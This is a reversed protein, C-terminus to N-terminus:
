LKVTTNLKTSGNPTTLADVKEVLRDIGNATRFTNSSIAALHALGNGMTDNINSVLPLMQEALMTRKAGDARIGNIYGGLLNATNETISAQIAGGLTTKSADTEDGTIGAYGRAKLRADAEQLANEYNSVGATIDKDLQELDDVISNDVVPTGDPKKLTLDTMPTGDPNLGYSAMFGAQAKTFFPQLTAAFVMQEVIDSIVDGVKKHFADIAGYVSGNVFANALSNSLSSGLDGVIDSFAKKMDEIAKKALEVQEKAVALLKKTGEDTISGASEMLTFFTLLDDTSMTAFDSVSKGMASLAEKVTKQLNLFADKRANTDAYRGQLIDAPDVLVSLFNELGGQGKYDVVENIGLIPKNGDKPAIGKLIDALSFEYNGTKSGFLRRKGTGEAGFITSTALQRMTKELAVSQRFIADVSDDIVKTSNQINFIDAQTLEGREELIKNIQLEFNIRNSIENTIKKQRQLEPNAAEARAQSVMQNAATIIGIISSAKGFNDGKAATQLQSIGQTISGIASGISRVFENSSQQLITDLMGGIKDINQLADRRAKEEEKRNTDAADLQAQWVAANAQEEEKANEIAMKVKAKMIRVWAQYNKEEIKAQRNLGVTKKENLAYEMELETDLKKQQRDYEIQAIKKNKVDELAALATALQKQDTYLQRLRKSEEDFKKNVAAIEKEYGDLNFDIIGQWIDQIEQAADRNIEVKSNNYETEALRRSNIDETLDAGTLESDDGGAERILDLKKLREQDLLAIKQRFENEALALRKQTSDQQARLVEAELRLQELYERNRLKTLKQEATEQRKRKKKDGGDAYAALMKDAEVIDAIAKKYSKVTEPKIGELKGAKINFITEAGLSDRVSEANKKQEEWFEKNKTIIASIGSGGSADSSQGSMGKYMQIAQKETQEFVDRAEKAKDIIPDLTNRRRFTNVVQFIERPIQYIDKTGWIVPVLSEKIKEKDLGSVKRFAPSKDIAKNMESIAESISGTWTTRAGEIAAEFGKQLSAETIKTKLIDYADALDLVGGQENKLGKLTTSYTKEIETRADYYEKSGKKALQLRAYLRDLQMVEGGLRAMHEAHTNSLKDLSKELDSQTTVTKYIAYTLAVVAAAILAYKNKAMMANLRAYAATLRDTAAAQVNQWVTMQKGLIINSIMSAKRADEAVKLVILGAKYTGITLILGTLVKGVTEYNTVLSRLTDVGGKLIGSNSEGIESMMIQYADKLNSIKGTLSQSLVEQMNFFKGGASTMDEFMEKIMEFPVLRQSIKDFIDASTLGVEGLEAFKKKLEEIVPIGAETLQRLEQGRLVSAARIQGYALVLRDMGVGLGASVDALMKTTDYLENMPVSFASLQKTFSVLDKFQFPSKVALQKIQDYIKNAGDLDQLIATLAIKQTEFEGSIQILSNLLRGAAFISVYSAALTHLNQVLRHQTSISSNTKHIAARTRDQIAATKAKQTNIQEEAKLQEKTLKIANLKGRYETDQALKNKANLEAYQAKISKLDGTNLKLDVQAKQGYKKLAADWATDIQKTDLGLSFFLNGLDAM